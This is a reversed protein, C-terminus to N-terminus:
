KAFDLKDNQAISSALQWYKMKKGVPLGVIIVRVGACAARFIREAPIGVLIFAPLFVM